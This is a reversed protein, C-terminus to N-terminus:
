TDEPPKKVADLPAWTMGFGISEAEPDERAAEDLASLTPWIVEEYMRKLKHLDQRRVRLQLARAFSSEDARGFFRSFIADTTHSLLSNLGDIRAMIGSGVLRHSRELLVYTPTRGPQLEIDGQAELQDVAQDILEEDVHSLYQKIRKRSLPEAWLAFLIRSPLDQTQEPAFFDERLRSSLNSVTRTSVGLLKAARKLKVGQDILEKLYALQVWEVVDKLGVGLKHSLKASPVLSSYITRGILAQQPDHSDDSM